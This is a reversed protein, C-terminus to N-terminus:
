AWSIRSQEGSRKEGLPAHPTLVLSPLIIFSSLRAAAKESTGVVCTTTSQKWSPKVPRCTILNGRKVNNAMVM